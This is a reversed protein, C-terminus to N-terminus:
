PNVDERSAAFLVGHQIAEFTPAGWEFVVTGSERETIQANCRLSSDGLGALSHEENTAISCEIHDRDGKNGVGVRTRSDLPQRDTGIVRCLSGAGLNDFRLELGLAGPTDAPALRVSLSWARPLQGKPVDLAVHFQDGARALALEPSGRMPRGVVPGTGDSWIAENLVGDVIIESGAADGLKGLGYAWAPMQEAAAKAAELGRPLGERYVLLALADHEEMDLIFSTATAGGMREGATMVNIEAFDQIRTARLGLVLLRGGGSLTMKGTWEGASLLPQGNPGLGLWSGSAAYAGEESTESLSGSWIADPAHILVSLPIGNGDHRVLVREPSFSTEPDDHLAYVWCASDAQDRVSDRLEELSPLVTAAIEGQTRPVTEEAAVSANRQGLLMAGAGATLLVIAAGGAALSVAKGPLRQLSRLRGGIRLGRRRSDAAGRAVPPPVTEEEECYEPVRKLAAIVERASGARDAPAKATMWEVVAVLEASAHPAVNRLPPPTLDRLQSMLQWPTSASYPLRGSLGEWAVIGTAYIDWNPHPDALDWSEPPAYSPTGIFCGTSGTLASDRYTDSLLKALGFDTLKAQGREDLLINSPKVDRHITGMEHCYELARLVQLLYSVLRAPPISPTLQDRLSGGALYPMDIGLVEGTNVFANVHVVHPHSLAAIARAEREFRMSFQPDSSLSPHVVKLAVERNLSNDKALYVIGMGGRGLERIIAYKGLLEKQLLMTM